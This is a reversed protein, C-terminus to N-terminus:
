ISVFFNNLEDETKCIIVRGEEIDKEGRKISDQFEKDFYSIGLKIERIMSEVKNIRRMYDDLNLNESTKM